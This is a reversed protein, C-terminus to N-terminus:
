GIGGAMGGAMIGTSFTSLADSSSVTDLTDKTENGRAQDRISQEALAAMKKLTANSERSAVISAARDSAVDGGGAGMESGLPEASAGSLMGSAAQNAAILAERTSKGEAIASRFAQMMVVAQAKTRDETAMGAYGAAQSESVGAGTLEAFMAQAQESGSAKISAATTGLAASSAERAKQAENEVGLWDSLADLVDVLYGVAGSLTDLGLLSLLKELGSLIFSGVDAALTVFGKYISHIVKLASQISDPLQDWIIQGLGKLGELIGPVVTDTLINWGEKLVGIIIDGLKVLGELIYPAVTKVLEWGEKLGTKILDGTEQLVVDWNNWLWKLGDLIEDKLSVVAGVVFGAAMVPDLGKKLDDGLASLGKRIPDVIFGVVEDLKEELTESVDSVEDRVDKVGQIVNSLGAEIAKTIGKGIDSFIEGLDTGSGEHADLAREAGAASVARETESHSPITEGM